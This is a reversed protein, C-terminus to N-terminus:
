DVCYHVNWPNESKSYNNAIYRASRYHNTGRDKIRSVHGIISPNIKNIEPEIQTRLDTLTNIPIRIKESHVCCDFIQEPIGDFKPM